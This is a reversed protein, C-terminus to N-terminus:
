AVGPVRTPPRPRRSRHAAATASARASAPLEAPRLRAAIMVPTAGPGSPPQGGSASRRARCARSGTRRAARAATTRRPSRTRSRLSASRPRQNGPAPPPHMRRSGPQRLARRRQHLPQPRRPRRPQRVCLGVGLGGLRRRGLDFRVSGGGGGGGPDRRVAHRGGLRTLAGLARAAARLVARADGEAAVTALAQHRGARGRRHRARLRRFAGLGARAATGVVAGAHGEALVAAGVQAGGFGALRWWRHGAGGGSRCALPFAGSM